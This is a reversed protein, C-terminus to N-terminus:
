KLISEIVFCSFTKGSQASLKKMAEIEEPLGSISVTKYMIKRGTPKRGGGHYSYGTYKKDPKKYRVGKLLFQVEACRAQSNCCQM